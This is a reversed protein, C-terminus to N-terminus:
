HTHAQSPPLSKTHLCYLHVGGQQPPFCCITSFNFFALKQLTSALTSVINLCHQSLTSVINLCHQSLKRLMKPTSVINLCHQPLTSAVNEVNKSNLCHQSLTSAINLCHQSLTSVITEVVTTVVGNPASPTEPSAQARSPQLM